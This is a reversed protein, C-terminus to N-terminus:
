DKKQRSKEDRIYAKLGIVKEEAMLTYAEVTELPRDVYGLVRGIATMIQGLERMRVGASLPDQPGNRPLKMVRVM